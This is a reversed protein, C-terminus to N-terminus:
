ITESKSLKREIERAQDLDEETNLNSFYAARPASIPDYEDPTVIRPNLLAVVEYIPPSIRPRHIIEDVVPKAIQVRYFACLPQLRGDPQEPVVAGFSGYEGRTYEALRMILDSTVFPLDCALIFLWEATTHALATYLGGLPGRGEIVDFVFSADLRAAEIAFEVENGTVFFIRSDGFSQEVTRLAREALTQGGIREFAKPRGLRSSRGGVLIFAEVSM